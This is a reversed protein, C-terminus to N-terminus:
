PKASGRKKKPPVAVEGINEESKMAKRGRKKTTTEGGFSESQQSSPNSKASSKTKPKKARSQAPIEASKEMEVVVASKSDANIHGFLKADLIKEKKELYDICKYLANTFKSPFRKDEEYEIECDWCEIQFDRDWLIRDATTEVADIWRGKDQDDVSAPFFPAADEEGAQDAEMEAKAVKICEFIMKLLKKDEDFDDLAMDLQYRSLFKYVYYVASENLSTLELIDDGTDETLYYAVKWLLAVKKNDPLRDFVNGKLLRNLRETSDFHLVNEYENLISLLTTVFVFQEADELVRRGKNTHWTM